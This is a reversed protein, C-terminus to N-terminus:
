AARPGQSQSESHQDDITHLSMLGVAVADFMHAWYLAEWQTQHRLFRTLEPFRKAVVQVADRKTAKDQRGIVGRIDAPNYEYVVLGHQKATFKIEEAAVTLLAASQQILLTREIALSEPRYRVILSAIFGAIDALLAHPPSRRKFTKVGYYELRSDKLVAFGLEKTGPDIALITPFNTPM